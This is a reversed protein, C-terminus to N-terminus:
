SIAPTCYKEHMKRAAEESIVRDPSLTGLSEIDQKITDFAEPALPRISFHPYRIPYTIQTDTCIIFQGEKRADVTLLSMSIGGEKPSYSLSNGADEEQGKQGSFQNIRITAYDPGSGASFYIPDVPASPQPTERTKDEAHGQDDLASKFSKETM